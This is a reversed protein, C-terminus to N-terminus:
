KFIYFLLFIAALISECDVKPLKNGITSIVLNLNPMEEKKIYM